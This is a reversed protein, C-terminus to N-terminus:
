CLDRGHYWVAIWECCFLLLILLLVIITIFNFSQKVESYGYKYM